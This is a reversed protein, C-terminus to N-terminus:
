LDYIIIGAIGGTLGCILNSTEKNGIGREEYYGAISDFLNGIMGAILFKLSQELTYGFMVSSLAILSAGVMGAVTGYLSICGSKGPECKKFDLISYAKRDFIGLESSFKDATIAAISSIYGIPNQLIAFILPPIGNSLVNNIGRKREYHGMEYKKWAMVNTVYIGLIFFIVIMSIYLYKEQDLYYLIAGLILAVIVGKKDLM